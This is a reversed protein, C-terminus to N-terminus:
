DETGSGLAEKALTIDPCRQLPDEAPLPKHVLSSRSGTQEVILEALERISFEGPNGSNIPGTLDVPSDMLRVFAEILDDVYCFSRPQSGDGYITIPRNQLAQM